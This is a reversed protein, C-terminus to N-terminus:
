KSLGRVCLARRFSFPYPWGTPDDNPRGENFNFYWVYGDPHGRDDMRQTSSWQYGTLFLNGKVHWTSPGNDPGSLGPATVNRDYIMGLEDLTALRWDSYGAARLDRCYKVAKKWSIDKGNDKAAWMLGTSPDIWYGRVQTEQPRRQDQLASQAGATIAAMQLLILILIKQFWKV